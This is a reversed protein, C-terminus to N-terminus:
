RKGSKRRKHSKKKTKKVIKAVPAPAPIPEELIPEFDSVQQKNRPWLLFALLLIPIVLLWLFPAHNQGTTTAPVISSPTSTTATTVKLGSTPPVESLVSSTDSTTTPSGSQQLNPTNQQLNGQQQQLNNTNGTLQDQM